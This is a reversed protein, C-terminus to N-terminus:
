KLWATHPFQTCESVSQVKGICISKTKIGTNNKPGFVSRPMDGETNVRCFYLTKFLRHQFGNRYIHKIKTCYRCLDWESVSFTPLIISTRWRFRKFRRRSDDQRTFQVPEQGDLECCMEYGGLRTDLPYRPDKGRPYLAAPAHRQSSVGM